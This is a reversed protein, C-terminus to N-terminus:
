KAEVAIAEIWHNRENVNVVSTLHFVREGVKMRCGSDLSVAKTSYRFAVKHSVQENVQKAYVLEEGTLPELAVYAECVTDWTEATTEFDSAPTRREFLARHKCKGGNM